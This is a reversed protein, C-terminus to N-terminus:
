GRRGPGQPRFATKVTRRGGNQRSVSLLPIGMTCVLGASRFDITVEADLEIALGRKLTTLGFGKREPEVVPPGGTETWDLRLVEPTSSDDVRWAVNVRGELQSLGGYKAANAALEHLALALALGM